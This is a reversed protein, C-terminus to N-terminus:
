QNPYMVTTDAGSDLLGLFEKGEIKVTLPLCMRTMAQVWYINSSGPQSNGHQHDHAPFSTNLPRPLAQALCQGQYFTVPGFPATALVRIEGIYDNDVISPQVLLGSITTSARGLIFFYLGPPPCLGGHSCSPCWGCTMTVISYIDLNASGPSARALGTLLHPQDIIRSPSPHCGMVSSGAAPLQSTSAIPQPCTMSLNIRLSTELSIKLPPIQM